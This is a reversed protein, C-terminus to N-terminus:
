GSRGTRRITSSARRRADGRMSRIYTRQPWGDIAGSFSSRASSSCIREVIRFPSLEDLLELVVELTGYPHTDDDLVAVARPLPCGARLHRRFPHYLRYRVQM